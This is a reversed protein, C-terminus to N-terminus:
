LKELSKSARDTRIEEHSRLLQQQGLADSLQHHREMGSVSGVCEDPTYPGLQGVIQADEVPPCQVVEILLGDVDILLLKAKQLCHDHQHHAQTHDVGEVHTKELPAPLKSGHTGQAVAALGDNGQDNHLRKHQAHYASRQAHYKPNEQGQEYRPRSEWAAV